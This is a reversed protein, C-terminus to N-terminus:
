RIPNIQYSEAFADYSECLLRYMQKYEEDIDWSLVLEKEDALFQLYDMVKQDKIGAQYCRFMCEFLVYCYVRRVDDVLDYLEKEEVFDIRERFAYCRDIIKSTVVGTISGERERVYNYKSLDIYVLKHADCFVKHTFFEDEHYRGSPFRKGGQFLQVKYLKNCAIAKFYKWRLQCRMAYQGDGVVIEGTNATEEEIRDNYINRYSCEVIDADECISYKLLLEIMDEDIWDDGDVFVLYDGKAENIGVNRAASLGGNDQHFVRIRSDKQALLDCIQGSGDSSGDDILIVDLKEYSQELVSKVCKQIYDCINYVPIIVSVVAQNEQKMM